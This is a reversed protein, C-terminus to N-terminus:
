VGQEGLSLTTTSPEPFAGTEFFQRLRQDKDSFAKIAWNELAQPKDPLETIPTRKVHIAVKRVDGLMMQWLSPIGEPYGITIDYVAHLHERLGIVSAVFGKTRPVMVHDTVPLNRKKAYEQSKKLKPPTIRTGELFSIVWISVKNQIISHFAQEIKARDNAWNRKLFICDLFLMGWGPGPVYKIIDKVFWKMDGLRHYRAALSMLVPIDAINQHNPMLLANEHPPLPDGTITVEIRNLKEVGHVLYAWYRDAFFWNVRRFWYGSIPRIVLSLMQLLNIILLPLFLMLSLIYARVRKGFRRLAGQHHPNEALYVPHQATM